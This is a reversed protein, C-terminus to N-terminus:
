ISIYKDHEPRIRVSHVYALRSKDILYKHFLISVRLGLLRLGRLMGYCPKHKHLMGVLVKAMFDTGILISGLFFVIAKSDEARMFHFDSM